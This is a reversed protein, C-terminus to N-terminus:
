CLGRPGDPEVKELPAVQLLVVNLHKRFIELNVEDIWKQSWQWTTELAMIIRFWIHEPSSGPTLEEIDNTTMANNTSESPNLSGAVILSNQVKLITWPLLMNNDLNLHGNFTRDQWRSNMECNDVGQICSPQLKKCNERSEMEAKQIDHDPCLKFCHGELHWRQHM